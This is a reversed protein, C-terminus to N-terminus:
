SLQKLSIKHLSACELPAHNERQKNYEGRLDYKKEFNYAKKVSPRNFAVSETIFQQSCLIEFAARDTTNNDPAEETRASLSSGKM